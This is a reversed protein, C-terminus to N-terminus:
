LLTGSWGTRQQEQLQTERRAGDHQGSQDPPDNNLETAKKTGEWATKAADSGPKFEWAAPSLLGDTHHRNPGSTDNIANASKRMSTALQGIGRGFEELANWAKKFVSVIKSVWESIKGAWKVAIRVVDAIAAPAAAAATVVLGIGWKAIAALIEGVAQAILDRVVSRVVSIVTGVTKVGTAMASCAASVAEHLQGQQEATAQYAKGAPGRWDSTARKAAGRFHQSGEDIEQGINKWTQSMANIAHEDGALWDLPERLFSVHEMLWGVGASALTALPDVATGVVDIATGASNALGEAWDGRGFADVAKYGSDVPGSANTPAEGGVVLGDGKSLPQEILENESM